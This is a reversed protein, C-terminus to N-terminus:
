EFYKDLFEMRETILAASSPMGSGSQEHPTMGVAIDSRFSPAEFPATTDNRIAVGCVPTSEITAVYESIPSGKAIM